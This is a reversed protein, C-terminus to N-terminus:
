DGYRITTTLDPQEHIPYPERDVVTTSSTALFPVPLAIHSEIYGILGLTKAGLKAFGDVGHSSPDFSWVNGLGIATAGNENAIAKVKDGTPDFAFTEADVLLLVHTVAQPSIRAMAAIGAATAPYAAELVITGPMRLEAHRSVIEVVGSFRPKYRSASLTNPYKEALHELIPYAGDNHGHAHAVAVICPYKKIM